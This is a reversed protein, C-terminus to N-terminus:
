DAVMFSGVKTAAPTSDFLGTILQRVGDQERTLSAGIRAADVFVEEEQLNTVQGDQAGICAGRTSFWWCSTNDPMRQSTRPVVGYPKVEQLDATAPDGPLFYTRDETGIFIGLPVVELMTVPAPMPIFGLDYLHPAWPESYFVFKDLATLSRGNVFRIIEGAPMPSLNLTMCRGGGSPAVVIQMTSAATLLEVSRYLVDGNLDSVYVIISNVWTPFAAPLGTVLIRGNAPATIQQSDCASERGDFDTQVFAIKYVGPLLAGAADVSLAPVISIPPPGLPAARDDETIRWNALSDTFITSVGDHSYSLLKNDPLVHPTVGDFQRITAREVGDDGFVRYLTHGDAYFSGFESGYLSHGDGTAVVLAAGRRRKLSGANTIDINEAQKLFDGEKSGLSFDERRNSVGRFPGLSPMKRPTTM